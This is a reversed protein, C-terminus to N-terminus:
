RLRSNIVYHALVVLKTVQTKDYQQSLTLYM